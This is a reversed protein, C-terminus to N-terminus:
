GDNRIVMLSILMIWVLWCVDRVDKDDGMDYDREYSDDDDDDDKWEIM